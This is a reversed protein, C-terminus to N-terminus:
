GKKTMHFNLKKLKERGNRTKLFFNKKKVIHFIRMRIFLKILYEKPIKDCQYQIKEMLNYLKKGINLDAELVSYNADFIDGLIEIYQVFHHPPKSLNCVNNYLKLNIFSTSDSDQVEEACMFCGQHHERLKKFLFGAVYTLVNGYVNSIDQEEKSTSAFNYKKSSTIEEFTESFFLTYLAILYPTHISPFFSSHFTSHFIICM